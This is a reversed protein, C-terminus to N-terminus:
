QYTITVDFSGNDVGVVASGNASITAGISLTASAVSTEGYGAGDCATDTGGDYNCIFSAITYGVGGSTNDVLITIAQATTATVTFDAAAIAGPNIVRGAADTLADNTGIVITEAGTFGVDVLGYQLANTETITIPDIFEVEAVVPEPNAADVGTAFMMAILTSGLIVSFRKMWINSNLM